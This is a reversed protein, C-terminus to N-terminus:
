IAKLAQQIAKCLKDSTFPKHLVVECSSDLGCSRAAHKDYGTTFIVKIDPNIKRLQSAVEVGSTSGRYQQLNL